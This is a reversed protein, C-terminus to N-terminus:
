KILYYPYENIPKDQMFARYYQQVYLFIDERQVLLADLLWALYPKARNGFLRYQGQEVVFDELKIQGLSFAKRIRADVIPRFPEVIDCVLSKRQYFQRHYVGCYNDFGYISLLAEVFSFLMTYGIDLLCNVTDHKVRPRRAVWNYEEFISQFYSRSAIGEIGLLEQLNLEKIELDNSYIRINQIATRLTTSKKRINCLVTLQNTIKNAVLRKAIAMGTYDYQKKRLIVNGETKSGWIGLVRLSQAMLVLTFGFKDARQLVGSTITINGVIFLAFLRYCTSQHKIDGNVDTVVINDNKFSLKEGQNTLIIVIQKMRFDPATLM